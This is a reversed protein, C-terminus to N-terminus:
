AEDRAVFRVVSLGRALERWDSQGALRQIIHAAMGHRARYATLAREGEYPPLVEATAAFRRRRVTVHVEPWRQVNLFWDAGKGWGSVVCYARGDADAGVVEIVARRQTGTRRGTHELLLFRGGLVWGLHARYLLLPARLLPRLLPGPRRHFLRM